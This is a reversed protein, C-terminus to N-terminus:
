SLGTFVQAIEQMKSIGGRTLSDLDLVISTIREDTTALTIADIVDQLLTEQRENNNEGLLHVLPDIYSLQDVLTGQPNVILAGKDPIQPIENSALAIIFVVFFLFVLNVTLLRLGNLLRGLGSFIRRIMGPKKQDTITM